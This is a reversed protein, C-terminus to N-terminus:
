LVHRLISFTHVLMFELFLLPQSRQDDLALLVLLEHLPLDVADILLLLHRVQQVYAHGVPPAAM